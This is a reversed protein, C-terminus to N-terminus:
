RYVWDLVATDNGTAVVAPVDLDHQHRVYLTDSAIWINELRRFGACHDDPLVLNCACRLLRCARM